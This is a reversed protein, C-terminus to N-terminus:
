RVRNLRYFRISHNSSSDDIWDMWEVNASMASEVATWGNSVMLNTSAAVGYIAGVVGPWEIQTLGNSGHVGVDAIRFDPANTPTNGTIIISVDQVGNTLTGKHDVEITYWGNTPQSIVIQEVNDRFNDGTTAANSPSNPDLVWPSNTLGSPAVVRLDLDNVLILNTPNLATYGQFPGPPDTWAITVKLPENTSGLVDFEVADGDALSVEKIHPLSDWAANNTIVFAANLTNVLGWGYIYDPGVSPGSEDATHIVIGKLTSALMPANTGYIQRHLQILLALSGTVGPAAQSTGSVTWYSSDGSKSATYLSEGNAVVDPKIRGDDTPGHSSFGCLSVSGTGSYGGPVDQVAGVVLTNKATMRPDLCDYGDVGGDVEHVMGTNWYWGFQGLVYHGVPQSSPGDDRDNGSSWVALHYPAAYVIADLERTHLTYLGFANDENTSVDLDGYWYYKSYPREWGHKTGYSHNSIRLDYEAIGDPLTENITENFYSVIDAAPAMGEAQAVAGSAILTGAVATSHYSASLYHEHIVRSVGIEQHTSLIAGSDWEGITVGRGDLSFVNTQGPHVEDSSISDAADANDVGLYIPHDGVIDFLVNSDGYREEMWLPFDLERARQRVRERRLDGRLKSVHALRILEVRQHKRRLDYTLRKRRDPEYVPALEEFAKFEWEEMDPLEGKLLLCALEESSIVNEQELRQWDAQEEAAVPSGEVVSGSPLRGNELVYQYQEPTILDGDRMMTWLEREGDSLAAVTADDAAASLAMAACLAVAVLVSTSKGQM